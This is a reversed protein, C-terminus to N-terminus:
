LFSDTYPVPELCYQGYLYEITMSLATLSQEIYPSLPREDNKARGVFVPIWTAMHGLLWSLHQRCECELDSPGEPSCAWIQVSLLALLADLELSVHDDPLLGGQGLSPAVLSLERYLGRVDLTTRGMMQPEPDLYVSAYPPASVAKPGVFLHNFNYETEVWEQLTVTEIQPEFLTLSVGKQLTREDFLLAYAKRLEESNRAMFFDRLAAIYQLLASPNQLACLLNDRIHDHM